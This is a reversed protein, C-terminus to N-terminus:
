GINFFEGKPSARNKPARRGDCEFIPQPVGALKDNLCRALDAAPSLHQRTAIYGRIEIQRTKEYPGIKSGEVCDVSLLGGSALHGILAVLASLKANARASAWM